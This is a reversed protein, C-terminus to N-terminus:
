AREVPAGRRIFRIMPALFLALAVLAALGGAVLGSVVMASEGLLYYHMCSGAMAYPAGAAMSGAADGALALSAVGGIALLLLGASRQLVLLALAAGLVLTTFAVVARLEVTMWWGESGLYTLLMSLSGVNLVLATSVAGLPGSYNRWPNRPSDNGEYEQRMRSGLMSLGLLAFALGQPLVLHAWWPGWFPAVTVTNLVGISAIGLVLWRAWFWGRALAVIALLNGASFIAADAAAWGEGLWAGYGHLVAFAALIVMASLKRLRM